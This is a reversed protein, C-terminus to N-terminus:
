STTTNYQFSEIKESLEINNPQDYIVDKCIVDLYSRIFSKYIRLCCPFTVSLKKIVSIGKVAKKIKENVYESFSIKADLYLGLPKQLNKRKLPM